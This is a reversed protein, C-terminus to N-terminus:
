WGRVPDTGLAAWRAHDARGAISNRPERGAGCAGAREGREADRARSQWIGATAAVRAAARRAGPGAALAPRSWGRRVDACRATAARALSVIRGAAAII